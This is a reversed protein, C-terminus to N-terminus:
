LDDDTTEEGDSGTRGNSRADDNQRARSQEALRDAETGEPADTGPAGDRVARKRELSTRDADHSSRFNADSGHTTGNFAFGELKNIHRQVADLMPITM